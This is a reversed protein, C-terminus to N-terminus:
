NEQLLSDLNTILVDICVYMCTHTLVWCWQVCVCVCVCLYEFNIKGCLCDVLFFLIFAIGYWVICIYFFVFYFSLSSFIYCVRIYRVLFYFLFYYMLYIKKCAVLFM